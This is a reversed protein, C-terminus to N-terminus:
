GHDVLRGALVTAVCSGAAQSVLAAYPDGGPDVDFVALDARAGPVLAGFDDRGMATAGGLTAATFLWEDLGDGSDGQELAISRLLPLEAAVDLDPSSALSDTGVAVPSGEARYAAVPPRGAELRANSRPCLAVSTGRQRLLARDAADLHVGHAVHSDAGLLGWKDMEVAPSTGCGGDLLEFCAGLERGMDAFAGSGSRVYEDEHLTEALHPHLRLGRERAIAAIDSGVARGLTYLTHPSVGVRLDSGNGSLTREVIDLFVARSTRWANDDIFCAEFYVTGALGSELLPPLAEPPTVVDAIGTVGNRLSAAM